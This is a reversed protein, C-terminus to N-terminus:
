NKSSRNVLSIRAAERVESDEDSLLFNLLDPMKQSRIDTAFCLRKYAHKSIALANLEEDSLISAQAPSMLLKSYYSWEKICQKCDDNLDYGDKYSIFMISSDYITILAVPTHKKDKLSFLEAGSHEIAPGWACKCNDIGCVFIPNFTEDTNLALNIVRLENDGHVRRIYYGLYSNYDKSLGM